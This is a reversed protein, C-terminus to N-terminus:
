SLTFKCDLGGLGIARLAADRLQTIREGFYGGPLGCNIMLTNGSSDVVTPMGEDGVLPGASALWQQCVVLLVAATDEWLGDELTFGLEKFVLFANRNSMNIETDIMLPAVVTNGEWNTFTETENPSQIYLSMSM